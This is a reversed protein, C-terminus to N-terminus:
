RFRNTKQQARELVLVLDTGQVRFEGSVNVGGQGIGNLMQNTQPTPFVQSGRPLNILEPGQEGVLAVGGPAYSTGRAFGKVGIAGIARTFLAAALGGAAAGAAINFPFPISPSSLAKAVAAAVGQQIYARIIKAAAGLAAKGLSAFSTEGQLAAQSIADGMGLFVQQMLTGSENVIEAAQQFATQFKLTGEALGDQIEKIRKAKEEAETLEREGTPIPAAPLGPAPANSSVFGPIPLAPIDDIPIPKYFAKVLNDYEEKLKKVEESAPKFGIDILQEIGNRLADIKALDADEGFLKAKDVTKTIDDIVDRYKEAMKTAGETVGASEKTVTTNKVAAKTAQEYGEKAIKNLAEEELEIQKILNQGATIRAAIAGQQNASSSLVAGDNAGFGGRRVPAQSQLKALQEQLQVQESLLKQKQEDLIILQGEAKKAKAALLISNIYANYSETLGVVKGNEINLQGFYEPNIRKLDNLARQKSERSSTEDNLVAILRKVSGGEKAADSEAERMLANVNQQAKEATTLERNFAGMQYALAAVATVIGILLFAQTALNMARIATVVNGIGAALSQAAPVLATRWINVIEAGTTKLTGYVKLVPGAAVAIGALGIILNQTGSSLNSFADAASAVFSALRDLNGSIDFANNLALGLKGASIKLSDIANGINNKIGGEVRPLEKAAETIRKVFEKGGVGMARIAEVSQTGFAKQMLQALGPMNESLISVDEQLVRGKSIMQAFQRTVNDLEQATGGTAAIANGMQILTERAEDAALGVGQLRVSGRVAQELGLGPNKAAENLLELERSAAEASGLQSKLALTLSELDGAAKIASVGVAALPASIALTMDSGLQSLRQGTRRMDREIGALSKNDFLFGVRVKLDSAQSAM